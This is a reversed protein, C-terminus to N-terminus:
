GFDAINRSVTRFADGQFVGYYLSKESKTINHMVGCFLRAVVGLRCAPPEFGRPFALFEAPFGTLGLTEPTKKDTKM